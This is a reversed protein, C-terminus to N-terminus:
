GVQKAKQLRDQSSKLAEKLAVIEEQMAFMQAKLHEPIDIGALSARLSRFLIVILERCSIDVLFSM